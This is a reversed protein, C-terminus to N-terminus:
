SSTEKRTHDRLRALDSELRDIKEDMELVLKIGAPNVGADQLEQIRRLRELDQPSFLRIRGESRSPRILGLKEYYRLTQPHMNVLRAVVSIVYCPERPHPDRV